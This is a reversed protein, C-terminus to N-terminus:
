KSEILRLELEYRFRYGRDSYREGSAYGWRSGPRAKSGDSAFKNLDGAFYFSRDTRYIHLPILNINQNGAIQLRMMLETSPAEGYLRGSVEVTKLDHDALSLSPTKNDRWGGKLRFEKVAPYETAPAEDPKIDSSGGVAALSLLRPEATAISGAPLDAEITVSNNGSDASDASNTSEPLARFDASVKPEREPLTLVIVVALMLSSVALIRLFVPLRILITWRRNERTQPIRGMVRALTRNGFNRWYGSEPPAMDAKRALHSIKQIMEYETLCEPCDNIHEELWRCEGLAGDLYPGILRKNKCSGM